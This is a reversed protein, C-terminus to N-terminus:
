HYEEKTNEKVKPLEKQLYHKLSEKLKVFGGDSIFNNSELIREDKKSDVRNVVQADYEM